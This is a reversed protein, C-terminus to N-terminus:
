FELDHATPEIRKEKATEELSKSELQFFKAQHKVMESNLEIFKAILVAMGTIEEKINTLEEFVKVEEGEKESLIEDLSAKIDQLVALKKDPKKKFDFIRM